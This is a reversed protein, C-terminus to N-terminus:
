RGRHFWTRELCHEPQGDFERLSYASVFGALDAPHRAGIVELACMGVCFHFTSYYWKGDSGRGIFIDHVLPDEKNCLSRYIMSDGNKMLILRPSMWYLASDHDPRQKGFENKLEAIEATRWVMNTADSSVGSIANIAWQRREPARLHYPDKRIVALFVAVGTLVIALGVVARIARKKM